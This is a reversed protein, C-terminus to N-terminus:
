EERRCDQLISPNRIAAYLAEYANHARLMDAWTIEGFYGVISREFETAKDVIDKNGGFMHRLASTLPLSSDVGKPAINAKMWNSVIRDIAVEFAVSDYLYSVIDSDETDTDNEEFANGGTAPITDLFGGQKFCTEIDKLDNKVLQLDDKTILGSQKRKRFM